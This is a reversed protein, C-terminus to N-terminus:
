HAAELQIVLSRLTAILYMELTQGALQKATHPKITLVIKVHSVSIQITRNRTDQAISAASQLVAHCGRVFAQCHSVKSPRASGWQESTIELGIIPTHHTFKRVWRGM